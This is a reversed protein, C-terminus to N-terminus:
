RRDSVQTHAVVLSKNGEGHYGWENEDMKGKDMGGTCGERRTLGRAPPRWDAQAGAAGDEESSRWDAAM